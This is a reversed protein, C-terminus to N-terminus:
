CEDRLLRTSLDSIHNIHDSISEVISKQLNLARALANSLKANTVALNHLPNLSNGSELWEAISKPPEDVIHTGHAM